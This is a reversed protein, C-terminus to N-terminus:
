QILAINLKLSHKIHLALQVLSIQLLEHISSLTQHKWYDYPKYQELIDLFSVSFFSSLNFRVDFCEFNREISDYRSDNKILSKLM